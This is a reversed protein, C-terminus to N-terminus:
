CATFSTQTNINTNSNDQFLMLVEKASYKEQKDGSQLYVSGNSTTIGSGICPVSTEEKNTISLLPAITTTMGATGPYIAHEGPELDYTNGCFLGCDFDFTVNKNGEFVGSADDIKELLNYVTWHVEYIDYADLQNSFIGASAVQVSCFLGFSSILILTYIKRILKNM